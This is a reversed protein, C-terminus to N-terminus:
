PKPDPYKTAPREGLARHAAAQTHPIGVAAACDPGIGLAKSVEDSLARGCSYCRLRDALHPRITSLFEGKEEPTSDHFLDPFSPGLFEDFVNRILMAVREAIDVPLGTVCWQRMECGETADLIMGDYYRKFGTADNVTVRISTISTQWDGLLAALRRDSIFRGAFNVVLTDIPDGGPLSFRWRTKWLASTDTPPRMLHILGTLWGAKPMWAPDLDIWATNPARSAPHKAVHARAWGEFEDDDETAVETQDNMPPNM